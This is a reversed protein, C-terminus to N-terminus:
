SDDLKNWSKLTSLANICRRLSGSRKAAEDPQWHKTTFEIIRDAYRSGVRAGSGQRPVFDERISRNPSARAVNILTEKPNTERDPDSPLRSPSVNLFAAFHEVDAMIWAEIARVAVRLQMGVEPKPLWMELAQPVCTADNDLDVIVFWPVFRSAQNYNPLRKLLNAKGTKGYPVGAVLGVHKLLHRAVAEDTTGEVLINVPVVLHNDSLSNELFLSNLLM